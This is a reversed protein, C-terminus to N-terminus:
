HLPAGDADAARIQAPRQRHVIGPRTPRPEDQALPRVLDLLQAMAGRTEMMRRRIDAMAPSADAPIAGLDDDLRAIWQKLVHGLVANVGSADDPWADILAAVPYGDLADIRRALARRLASASDDPWLLGQATM